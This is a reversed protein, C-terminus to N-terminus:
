VAVRKINRFSHFVHWVFENIFATGIYNLYHEGDEVLHGTGFIKFVEEEKENENDVLCWLCIKDGQSGVRLVTYGMPILVKEEGTVGLEIKWVTKM